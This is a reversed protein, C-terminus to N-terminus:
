EDHRWPPTPLTLKMQMASCDPSLAVEISIREDDMQHLTVGAGQCARFAAQINDMVEVWQRDPNKLDRPVEIQFSSMCVGQKVSQRDTFM